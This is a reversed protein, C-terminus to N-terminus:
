VELHLDVLKKIELTYPNYIHSLHGSDLFFVHKLYLWSEM